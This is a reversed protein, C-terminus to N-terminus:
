STGSCFMAWMFSKILNQSGGMMYLLHEWTQAFETADREVMAVETEFDEDEHESTCGGNLDDVFMDAHRSVVRQSRPCPLTMGVTTEQLLKLASSSILTWNSGANGKGQGEGFTRQGEENEMARM